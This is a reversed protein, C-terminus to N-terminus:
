IKGIYSNPGVLSLSFFPSKIVFDVVAMWCGFPPALLPQVLSSLPVEEEEIGAPITLTTVYIHIHTRLSIEVGM